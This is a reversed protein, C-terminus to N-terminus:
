AGSEGFDDFVSDDVVAGEELANFPVKRLKKLEIGFRDGIDDRLRDWHLDEDVKM